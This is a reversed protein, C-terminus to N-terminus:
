KLTFPMRTDLTPPPPYDPGRKYFEIGWYRPHLSIFTRFPFVVRDASFVIPDTFTYIVSFFIFSSRCFKIMNSYKYLKM